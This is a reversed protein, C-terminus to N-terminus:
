IVTDLRHKAKFDRIDARIREVQAWKDKTEIVNDARASQNAAIFKPDYIAKRPRYKEMYPRLQTQLGYDLVKAREMADALNMGSIDWGDLFLENPDVMPLVDRM